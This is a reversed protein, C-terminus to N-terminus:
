LALELARVLIIVGGFLAGIAGILVTGAMM